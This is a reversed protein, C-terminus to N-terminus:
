GKEMIVWDPKILNIDIEYKHEDDTKKIVEADLGTLFNKCLYDILQLGKVGNSMRQSQKSENDKTRSNSCRILLRENDDKSIDINFTEEYPNHFLFNECVVVLIRLLGSLQKWYLLQEDSYTTHSNTKQPGFTKQQIIWCSLPKTNIHQLFTSDFEWSLWVDAYSNEFEKFSFEDVFYSDKAMQWAMMALTALNAPPHIGDVTMFLDKPDYTLSWLSLTRGLASLLEPAPAIKHESKQSRERVKEDTINSAIKKIKEWREPSVVWKDVRSGLHKIQHAFNRWTEINGKIQGQADATREVWATTNAEYLQLLIYRLFSNIDEETAHNDIALFVSAVLTFLEPNRINRFGVPIAVLYEIPAGCASRLSHKEKSFVKVFQDWSNSIPPLNNIDFDDEYPKEVSIKLYSEADSESPCTNRDDKPIQSDHLKKFLIGTHLYQNQGKPDVPDLLKKLEVQNDPTFFGSKSEESYCPLGAAFVPHAAIAYEHNSRIYKERLVKMYLKPDKAFVITLADINSNGGDDAFYSIDLFCLHKSCKHSILWKKLHQLVLERHEENFNGESKRISTLVDKLIPGYGVVKDLLKVQTLKKM